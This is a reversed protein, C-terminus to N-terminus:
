LAEYEAQAAGLRRKAEMIALDLLQMPTFPLFNFGDSQNKAPDIFGDHVLAYTDTNVFIKIATKGTANVRLKEYYAVTDTLNKVKKRLALAADLKIDDM